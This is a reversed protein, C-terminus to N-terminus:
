GQSRGPMSTPAEGESSMARADVRQESVPCIGGLAASFTVEGSM